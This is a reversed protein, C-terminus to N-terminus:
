SAKFEEYSLNLYRNLSYLHVIEGMYKSNRIRGAIQQISTSIDLLSHAANSDSIIFIRGEEDYIDSGEFATSTLFNIKKPASFTSSNAIGMQVKSSKSYIVRTNESTLGLKKIIDKIVKTSNLFLYANGEYYGELFQRILKITAAQVSQCQVTIVEANVVEGKWDERIVPLDKLEDLIFEDEIPTATMFCFDKFDKYHNLVFKIAEQRFSYQTFLIHYEDILLKYQKPDIAELVKPLGDYTTIIKPIPTNQTYKKISAVTVGSWVGFLEGSYRENPYQALKNDVLSVFPVCIVYPVNSEIALTTGGCGVKGKDFLCNVPLEKRLDSLYMKM